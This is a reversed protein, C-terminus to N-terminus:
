YFENLKKNFLIYIFNIFKYVDLIILLLSYCVINVIYKFYFFLFFCDFFVDCKIGKEELLIMWREIIKNKIVEFIENYWM